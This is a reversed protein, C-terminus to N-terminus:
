LRSSLTGVGFSQLIVSMHADALGYVERWAADWAAAKDTNGSAKMSQQLKKLAASESANRPGSRVIDRAMKQMLIRSDGEAFKCCQLFDMQEFGTGAMLAYSGVEQKLAFCLAISTEVAKVKAVAIAQQLGLSPIRDSRLQKEVQSVFSFLQGLQRNGDQLIANIQPVENLSPRRGNPAWCPKQDAFAHCNALLSKTFELAAYAVAVRGTFLRQGIMEMTRHQGNPQVVSGDARVELYRSLLASRPVRVKTFTLRANDLDNGVTKRGMDVAQIGPLLTGVDDRFQVLFAQPGFKKGNVTLSAVVVGEDAVLGQSIWNKAAGPNPTNIVFENSAADFTATTEVVLGSNVGALLETLGFCGLRARQKNRALLAAIQERTGLAVVTGAFLNYHVTFRIFFGPGLRTAQRAILRHAEFFRHPREVIDTLGLLGTRIVARLRDAAQRYTMGDGVDAIAATFAERWADSDDSAM